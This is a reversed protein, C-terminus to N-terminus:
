CREGLGNGAIVKKRRAAMAFDLSAQGKSKLTTEGGQDGAVDTGALGSGQAGEDMGKVAVDVGDDIDRIRKEGDDSEVALNEKLELGFGSESEETEERL